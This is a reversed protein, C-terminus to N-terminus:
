GRGEGEGNGQGGGHSGNIDESFVSRRLPSQQGQGPGQAQQGQGQGHWSRAGLYDAGEGSEATATPPSVVAPSEVVGRDGVGMGGGGAAAPGHHPSGITGSLASVGSM